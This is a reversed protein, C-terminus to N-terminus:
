LKNPKKDRPHCKAHIKQLDTIAVRTYVQTTKLFRHGLHEQVYRIDAGGKLMLTACTHRFVHSTVHKKLGAQRAAQSCINTLTGRCIPRAPTQLSLFLKQSHTPQKLRVQTLYQSLWYTAAKGLPITRSKDGKGKVISLLGSELNLDTLNLGRLESARIGSTYLTELIARDRLGKPSTTDLIKLIKNVERATLITRPLEQPVKPLELSAAPNTLVLNAQSLYNFFSRITSLHHSQTGRSLPKGQYEQYYLYSQYDELESLTLKPIALNQSTLYLLFKKLSSQYNAITRKSFNKLKIHNLYQQLYTQNDMNIFPRRKGPIASLM